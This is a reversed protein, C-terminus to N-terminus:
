TTAIPVQISRGKAVTFSRKILFRTNHSVPRQDNSREMAIPRPRTALGNPKAGPSGLTRSERVRSRRPIDSDDLLLTRRWFADSNFKARVGAVISRM